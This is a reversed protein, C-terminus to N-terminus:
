NNRLLLQELQYNHKQDVVWMYKQLYSFNSLKHKADEDLVVLPTIEFLLIVYKFFLV